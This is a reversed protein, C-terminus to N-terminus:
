GAIEAQLADLAEQATTLGECVQQEADIVGFKVDVWELKAEPRVQCRRGHPLHGTVTYM